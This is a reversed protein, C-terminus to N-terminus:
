PKPIAKRLILEFQAGGGPADTIHIEGGVEHVIDAVVSLGIGLGVGAPKTTYFPEFIASRQALPIGPGNDIVRVRHTQEESQVEIRVWADRQISAADIANNTLNVLVQTLRIQSGLVWCDAAVAQVDLQVSAKRARPSVLLVADDFIAQLSVPRVEPDTKRAFTLLTRSLAAMRDVQQRILSLNNQVREVHGRELFREANEAYTGITALPQNYEHSLTASMQGIAALKASRVVEEQAKLLKREAETRVEIEQQLSRNSAHLDRTRRQVLRELRLADAREKREAAMSQERRRMVLMGGMAVSLSLLVSLLLALKQDLNHDPSIGFAHLQWNLLPLARTAEQAIYREGEFRLDIGIGKRRAFDSLPRGRWEPVNSLIVRGWEDTVGIPLRSLAWAQEVTSLDVFFVLVGVPDNVGGVLASFAYYRAQADEILTARGLRSEAPARLLETTAEQSTLNQAYLGRASTIYSGDRRYLAVDAAGALYSLETTKDRLDATDAQASFLRRIDEQRALIPPLSRFRDLLGTLAGAQVRLSETADRQAQQISSREVWTLSGWLTLSGLVWVGVWFASRRWQWQSTRSTKVMRCILTAQRQIESELAHRKTVCLM